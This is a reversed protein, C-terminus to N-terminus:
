VRAPAEEAAFAKREIRPLRLGLTIARLAMFALMACWLGHNGFRSSLVMALVLFGAFSILMSDRLEPARTAGIFVGDLLFSWVAIIPLIIAWPLFQAALVRVPEQNTYVAIIQKGFVLYALSILVAVVFASSSSAKLIARYDARRGAGIAEGVLAETANAFGDLAYAAIMHFNLLVANAALIADGSRAGTRTFWVYAAVLSLTRLLIDRNLAFLHRLSPGHMIESWRHHKPHVGSAFMIGLGLLCGTWEATLTATAIGAIGWHWGVVLLLAVAVNVLNIAAQLLLATRARQRGLLYGLITYNALSAPASWIRIACYIQANQRVDPSAGLLNLSVSILPSQFLLILAGIALATLFARGFHHLLRDEDGAGHSQAILGTTAMRLFGFTWFISNFFIGGVAVGGLAAPGPLHGSLITDVTSLLPQTLNSLILPIALLFVRRYWYPM